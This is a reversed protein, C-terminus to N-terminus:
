PCGLGINYGGGTVLDNANIVVTYTGTETLTMQRQGNASFTVVTAGSPALVTANAMAFGWNTTNVLTLLVVQNAQGVFTVLDVEGSATISKSLLTGCGLTGNVPGLPALCTLGINYGGGTVLDNANIKITYTGTEM